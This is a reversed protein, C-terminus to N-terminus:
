YSFAIQFQYYIQCKKQWQDFKRCYAIVIYIIYNSKFNICIIFNIYIIYNSMFSNVEEKQSSVRPSWCTERNLRVACYPHCFCSNLQTQQRMTWFPHFMLVGHTTGMISFFVLRGLYFSAVMYWCTLMLQCMGNAHM